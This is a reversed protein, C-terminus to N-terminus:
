HLKTLRVLATRHLQTSKSSPQIQEHPEYYDAITYLLCNSAKLINMDYADAGPVQKLLPYPPGCDQSPAFPLSHLQMITLCNTHIYQMVQQFDLM